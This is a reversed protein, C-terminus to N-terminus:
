KLKCVSAIKRLKRFGLLVFIGTGALIIVPIYAYYINTEIKMISLNYLGHLLTALFIGLIVLSIRNKKRYFSLAMFFGLVGSCIAHLFTAGLFRFITLNVTFHLDFIEGAPLLYLVNEIAAFGLGAIVMYLMADVPEDFASDKIAIKRVILYKLFEEILSVGIFVELLLLSVSPFFVDLTLGFDLEFIIAYLAAIVGFFFVKLITRNSEPHADERLFFLLWITSPLIGLTLCILLTM